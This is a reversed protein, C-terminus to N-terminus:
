PLGRIIGHIRPASSYSPDAGNCYLRIVGSKEGLTGGEAHGLRHLDDFARGSSGVSGSGNAASNNAPGAAAIGAIEGDGPAVHRGLHVALAEDVAARQSHSAGSYIDPDRMSSRPVGAHISVALCPVELYPSSAHTSSLPM